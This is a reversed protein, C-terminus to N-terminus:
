EKGTIKALTYAGFQSLGPNKEFMKERRGFIDDCWRIRPPSVFQVSEGTYSRLEDLLVDRDLDAREILTNRLDYPTASTHRNRM